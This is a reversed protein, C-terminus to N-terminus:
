GKYEHGEVLIFNTKPADCTSCTYEQPLEDFPITIEKANWHDGYVQDYVTLCDRCQYLTNPQTFVLTEEPLSGASADGSKEYFV